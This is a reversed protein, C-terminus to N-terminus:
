FDFYYSLVLGVSFVVRMMVFLFQDYSLDFTPIQHETTTTQQHPEYTDIIQLYM